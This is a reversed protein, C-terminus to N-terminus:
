SLLAVSKVQAYIPIGERIGMGMASRRTIRSLLTQGDELELRVLVQTQSIDQTDIVRAPLINIISTDSHARISLSVDRAQVQVRARRGVPLDERPIAVRGGHMSVWTLHYTHDHSSVTGVLLSAADDYSALPLDLRTLLNAADGQAIAKGNDMLVMRDALRAVENPDHSVYLSPIAFEDHLSELYPLIIQKAGHDLASLPEDMLLLRPSTLLARAIAVRQREGGSLSNAARRQLESLGLLEVVDHYPIQREQEPVRSMGYELNRQVSLHPFLSAEQFVYGLPRRHTPVFRKEDQWVEDNIRVLGQPTRVLGAVARLVSTKGSGSRGFLATVGQAPATFDVNLEFDGLQSQLRVEIESM